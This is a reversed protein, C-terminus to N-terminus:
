PTYKFIVGCGTECARPRGTGGFATVGYISGDHGKKLEGAPNAGDISTFRHAVAYQGNRGIQFLVGCGNGAKCSTGGGYVTTGYLVGDVDALGAYPDVGDDPRTSRFVHLVTETETPDLRYVLGNSTSDGGGAAAGHISGNLDVIVRGVPYAGDAGGTFNHLVVFQGAPDLKFVQGPVLLSGYLNGASDRALERLGGEDKTFAKVVTYRGKKTVSFIIPSYGNAGYLELGATGYLEGNVSVLKGSPYKGRSLGRFTHLVTLANSNGLKFVTGCRCGSYGGGDYAVGYLNGEPDRFLGGSPHKGDAKGSFSYLVTLVGSPDVTFVTGLGFAGGKYTTGYLNGASDQILSGNPKIGDTGSFNHVVSFTQAQLVQTAILALFMVAITASSATAGFWSQRQRM